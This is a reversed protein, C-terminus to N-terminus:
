GNSFLKMLAQGIQAWYNSDANQQALGSNQFGNLSSFLSAPNASPQLSSMALRLRQDAYNPIQQLLQLANLARGENGAFNQEQLAAIQALVQGSLQQNQRDLNVANAAFQGQRQSRTQSLSRDLQNIEDQVIGSDPNLGRQSARQLIQQRLADRQSTLPDLAQTQLTDMQQPTYAPGQLKTAYQRLYDLLPNLDPNDYPQNLRGVISRLAQEWEKTAPDDFVGSGAQGVGSRGDAGGGYDQPNFLRKKFYEPDKAGWDNWYREWDALEQPNPDRQRTQQYAQRVWDQWTGGGAAGTTAGNTQRTSYAQAEPSGYIARQIAALDLGGNAWSGIEDAGGDRGLATRYFQGVAGSRDTTGGTTPYGGPPVTAVYAGPEEFPSAPHTPDQTASHENAFFDRYSGGTPNGDEERGSTPNFLAM